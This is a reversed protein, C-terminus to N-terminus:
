DEEFNFQKSSYDSAELEVLGDLVIKNYKLLVNAIRIYRSPLDLIRESDLLYQFLNIIKDDNMGVDLEDFENLYEQMSETM